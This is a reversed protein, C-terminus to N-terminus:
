KYHLLNKSELDKIFALLDKKSKNPSVDFDEVIKNNLSEFTSYQNLQSIIYSGLENVQFYIGNKLNLIVSENNIKSLVIDDVIKFIKDNFEM